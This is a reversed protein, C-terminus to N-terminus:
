GEAAQRAQEVAAALGAQPVGRLMETGIIFTPTGMIAMREALQRNKRIVESVEETNMRNIVAQADLGLDGALATLSETTVAGRMEILADHANKYADAGAIQQTAVAFRAALDSEQGLIPFEKLIFRINGDEQVLKEVEPSVRRCYGCRYDVFEVLTIDGEPNGGVWSHGDEFIEAQNNQVLLRDNHFEQEARRSELANIAEVLVEPNTMLYERVADGFAEKQADDMAAPDFAAAPIATAACLAIAAIVAKM